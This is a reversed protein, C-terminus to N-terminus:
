VDNVSVTGKVLWLVIQTEYGHMYLFARCEFGEPKKFRNWKYHYYNIFYTGSTGERGKGEGVGKTKWDGAWKSEKDPNKEKCRGKMGKGEEMVQIKKERQPESGETQRQKKWERKLVRDREEGM